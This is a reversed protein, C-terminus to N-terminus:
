ILCRERACDFCFWEGHKNKRLFVNIGFVGPEGCACMHPEFRPEYHRAFLQPEVAKSKRKALKKSEKHSLWKSMEKGSREAMWLDLM